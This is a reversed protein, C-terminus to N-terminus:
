VCVPVCLCVPMGECLCLCACVSVYAFTCPCAYVCACVCLYACVSVCACTCLFSCVRVCMCELRADTLGSLSWLSGTGPAPLGLHPACLQPWAYERGTHSHPRPKSTVSASPSQCLSAKHTGLSRVEKYDGPPGSAERKVVGRNPRACLLYGTFVEQNFQSGLAVTLRIRLDGRGKGPTSLPDRPQISGQWGKRIVLKKLHNSASLALM